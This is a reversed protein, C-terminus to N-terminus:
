HKVNRMDPIHSSVLRAESVHPLPSVAPGIACAAHGPQSQDPCQAPLLHQEGGRVTLQRRRGSRQVEPFEVPDGASASGSM